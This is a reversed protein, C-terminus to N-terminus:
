KKKGPTAEEEKGGGRPGSAVVITLKAATVLSFKKEDLKLDAASLAKGAVLNDVNLEFADVIDAPLCRVEVEKVSHNVKGGALIAPSIGTLKVPIKVQIPAKMDVTLFDIHLPKGFVPHKQLEQVLVPYSKGDLNITFVHNQGVERYLKIFESTGVMVNTSPVDKGYVVAPIMGSERTDRATATRIKAELTHM